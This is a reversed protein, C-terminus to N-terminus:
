VPRGNRRVLRLPPHLRRREAEWLAWELGERRRRDISVTSVRVDDDGAAKKKARNSHFFAEVEQSWTRDPDDNQEEMAEPEPSAPLLMAQDARNCKRCRFRRAARVLSMSWGRREFASLLDEADM